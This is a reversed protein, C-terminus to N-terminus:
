YNRNFYIFAILILKKVWTQLEHSVFYKKKEILLIYNVHNMFLLTSKM